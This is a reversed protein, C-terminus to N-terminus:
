RSPSIEGIAHGAASPMEVGLLKAVTPALDIHTYNTKVVKRKLGPGVAVAFVHSCGSCTQKAGYKRVCRGHNAWNNPDPWNDRGHDTNVILYTSDKYYPDEQIMKWLRGLYNDSERLANHYNFIGYHLSMHEKISDQLHAEEDADTFHIFALRPHRKPLERIVELFTDADSRSGDGWVEPKIYTGAKWGCSKYIDATGVIHCINPWSAHVAVGDSSLDLGNKVAEFITPYASKYDEAPPTNSVIKEQRRGAFMDAYAPLSIGVPNSIRMEPLFVGRNKLALLNPFLTEAKVIRGNDDTATGQIENQRIGDIVVWIVKPERQSEKAPAAHVFTTLSLFVFAIRLMLM